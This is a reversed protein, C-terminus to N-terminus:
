HGRRWISGQKKYIFEPVKWTGAHKVYINAVKWVGGVKIYSTSNFPIVNTSAVLSSSATNPTADGTIRIDGAETIRTDGAETIRDLSVTTAEMQAFNIIGTM